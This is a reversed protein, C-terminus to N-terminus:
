SRELPKGADEGNHHGRERLGVDRAQERLGGGRRAGLHGVLQRALDVACRQVLGFLADRVVNDADHRLIGLQCHPSGERLAQAVGLLQRV